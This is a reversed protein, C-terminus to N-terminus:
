DERSSGLQSAAGQLASPESGARSGGLELSSGRSSMVPQSSGARSTGPSQSSHSSGGHLGEPQAPQSPGPQSPGALQSPGPATQAALNDDSVTLYDVRVWEDNGFTYTEGDGVGVSTVNRYPRFLAIAPSTPTAELVKVRAQLLQAFAVDHLARPGTGADGAMIREYFSHLEKILQDAHFFHGDKNSTFLKEPQPYPPPDELAPVVKNGNDKEKQPRASQWVGDNCVGRPHNLPSNVPGPYMVRKCRHCTHVKTLKAALETGSKGGVRLPFAHCHSYWFPQGSRSQYNNSIIRGILKQELDFLKAMLARPTKLPRETATAQNLRYLEKNYTSAACVWDFPTMIHTAWKGEVRLRLFLKFEDYDISALSLSRPDIGGSAVSFVRQSRTLGSIACSPFYRTNLTQGIVTLPNQLGLFQDLTPGAAHSTSVASTSGTPVAPKQAKAAAPIGPVTLRLKKRPPPKPQSSAASEDKSSIEIPQAATDGSEHARKRSPGKGKRDVGNGHNEAAKITATKQDRSDPDHLADVDIIQTPPRASTSVDPPRSFPLCSTSSPFRSSAHVEDAPPPSIAPPSIASNIDFLQPSSPLSLGPPSSESDFGVPGHTSTCPHPTASYSASPGPQAAAHAADISSQPLQYLLSPDIGVESLIRSPDLLDQSSLDFLGHEDDVFEKKISTLSQHAATEPSMKVMGFTEDSQPAELVPLPEMDSDIRAKRSLQKNWRRACDSVLRVHHSGFSSRIFKPPEKLASEIRTNHRLVFDHGLAAMMEIGSSFSRQLSNWGKHSGEIRSGDARVDDRPRALCGKRVHALQEEHARAGAATWVGKAEWKKFATELRTEQEDKSWYIAPSNTLARSKLIADVIDHAVEPRVPCKSGGVLCILYRMLFHWVDLCVVADPFVDHVAKAVHCCCDSIVM